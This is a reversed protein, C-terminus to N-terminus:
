FEHVQLQYEAAVEGLLALRKGPEAALAASIKRNFGVLISKARDAFEGTVAQDEYRTVYSHAAVGIVFYLAANESDSSMLQFVDKSLQKFDDSGAGSSEFRAATEQFNM